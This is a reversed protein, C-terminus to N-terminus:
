MKMQQELHDYLSAYQARKELNYQHEELCNMIMHVAEMLQHTGDALIVTGEAEKARAGILFLLSQADKVKQIDKELTM